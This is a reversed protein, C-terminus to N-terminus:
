AHGARLVMRVGLVVATAGVIIAGLAVFSAPSIAYVTLVAGLLVIIVGVIKVM